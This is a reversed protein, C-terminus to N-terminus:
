LIDYSLGMTIFSALRNGWITFFQYRYLEENYMGFNVLDELGNVLKIRVVGMM